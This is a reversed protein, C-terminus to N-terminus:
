EDGIDTSKLIEWEVKRLLYLISPVHSTTTVFYLDQDEETTGIVIAESLGVQSAADLITAGSRKDKSFKGNIVNDTM